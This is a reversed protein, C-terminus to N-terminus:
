SNTVEFSRKLMDNMKFDQQNYFDNNETLSRGSCYPGAALASAVSAVVFVVVSAVM